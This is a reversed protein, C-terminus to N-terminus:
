PGEHDIVHAEVAVARCIRQTDLVLKAREESDSRPWGQLRTINHNLRDTMDRLVPLRRIALGAKEWRNYQSAIAADDIDEPDLAVMRAIEDAAANIERHDM